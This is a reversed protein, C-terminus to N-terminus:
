DTKCRIRWELKKYKGIREEMDKVHDEIFKKDANEMIFHWKGFWLDELIYVVEKPYTIEKNKSM